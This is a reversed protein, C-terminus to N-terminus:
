MPSLQTTNQHIHTQERHAKIWQPEAMGAHGLQSGLGPQGLAEWFPALKCFPSKAGLLVQPPNLYPQAKLWLLASLKVLQIARTGQAPPVETHGQVRPGAREQPNQQLSPVPLRPYVCPCGGHRSLAASASFDPLHIDVYWLSNSPIKKNNTFSLTIIIIGKFLFFFFHYKFINLFINKGTPIFPFIWGFRLTEHINKARSSHQNIM